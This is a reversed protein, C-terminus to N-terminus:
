ERFWELEIDKGLITFDDGHVVVRLNKEEQYFVCPSSKGKKFGRGIMFGVYAFEWNQAVCARKTTKTLYLLTCRGDQQHM